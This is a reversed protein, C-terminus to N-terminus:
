DVGLYAEIVRKDNQIVEANGECVLQGQVLVYIKECIKMVLGM